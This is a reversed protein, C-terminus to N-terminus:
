TSTSRRRPRARGGAPSLLDGERHQAGVEGRREAGGRAEQDQQQVRRHRAPQQDVIRPGEAAPRRPRHVEQQARETGTRGNQIFLKDDEYKLEANELDVSCGRTAPSSCRRSTPGRVAHLLPARRLAELELENLQLTLDNRSRRWSSSCRTSSWRRGVGQADGESVDELEMTVAEERPADLQSSRRSRDVIKQQNDSSRSRRASSRGTGRRSGALGDRGRGEDGRGVRDEQRPGQRPEQSTRRM